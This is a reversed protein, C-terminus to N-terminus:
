KESFEEWVRVSKEDYEKLNRKNLHNNFFRWSVARHIGDAIDRVNTADVVSGRSAWPVESSAVLPVGLSVSDAAVICFTESLSVCMSVDMRELVQKFQRHDHWVHEVIKHRSHKFLARLNKLVGDGGEVRTANVHFHLDITERDAYHIAAMAQILQNKLPRIAGFCGVNIHTGLRKFLLNIRHCEEPTKEHAPFYNPLYVLKDKHVIHEFAHLTRLLNFGVFVSSQKAYERIWQVAVGEQALFPIDSHIRVIWQVGPHLTKLVEFKEPVVWLAEIIVVDPRYLSVERDIDNNDTVVVLKAEIGHDILMRVVFTASNLLGSGNYSYTHQYGQARKTIFLIRKSMEPTM